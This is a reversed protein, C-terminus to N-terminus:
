LHHYLEPSVKVPNLFYYYFGLWVLGLRVVLGSRDQGREGWGGLFFDWGVGFFLVCFLFGWVGFIVWIIFLFGCVFWCFM